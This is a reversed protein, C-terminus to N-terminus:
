VTVLAAKEHREQCAEHVRKLGIMAPGCQVVVEAFIEMALRAAEAPGVSPSVMQAAALILIQQDNMPQQVTVEQVQGKGLAAAIEPPLGVLDLKGNQGM